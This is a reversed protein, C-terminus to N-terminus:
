CPAVVSMNASGVTFCQLISIHYQSVTRFPTVFLSM